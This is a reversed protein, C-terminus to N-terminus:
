PDKRITVLESKPAQGGMNTTAVLIEFYPLKEGPAAIKKLVPLLMDDNMVFDMAAETGAMTTGEVLLASENGMLGPQFAVLGYARRLPDGPSNFYAEREGSNPRRNNVRFARTKEDIQFQFNLKQEYLLVWPNAEAVGSLVVNVGKLDPLKVDRAYRIQLHKPDSWPSEILRAAFNLDAMTTYRRSGVDVAIKGATDLSDTVIMSFDQPPYDPLGINRRTLNQFMVLGSDAPVFLTSQDGGFFRRWLPHVKQVPAANRKGLGYGAIAGIVGVAACVLAAIMWVRRPAVGSKAPVAAIAPEEENVRLEARHEVVSAAVREFAPIYSGKPITLRLEEGAGENEFYSELKQRLLRAHSRVISDEAPLYGESRGFIQVGIQQESIEDTRGEFACACIYRLFQSLRPSRTFAPSSAIREVLERRAQLEGASVPRSSVSESDTM